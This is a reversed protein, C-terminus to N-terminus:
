LMGKLTWRGSAINGSSCLLRIADVDAGTTRTGAGYTAHLETSANNYSVMRYCIMATKAAPMDFFEIVGNLGHSSALNDLTSVHLQIQTTHANNNSVTGASGHGNAGYFYDTAGADYSAGGNTSTRLSLGDNDTVPVFDELVLVKNRYGAYQTLVIDLSAVNTVSGSMLKALGSPPATFSLDDFFITGTAAGAGPVGGIVKVKAFRATAPATMPSSHHTGSTPANTLDLVNVASVQSQAADYWVVQMRASVNAVSASLIADVRYTRDEAVPIFENSLADGGGNALVTSTFALSTDGHHRTSTSFAHSGGSYDTITWGTGGDEFSGNRLLNPGVEIQASNAGDHNHDQVAGAFFSAGLWERLHVLDDRIGTMLTADVPSDPDVAADAISVWAKSIAAV